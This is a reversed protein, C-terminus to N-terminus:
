SVLFPGITYDGHKTTVKDRHPELLIIIPYFLDLVSTKLPVYCKRDAVDPTKAWRANLIPRVKTYSEIYTDTRGDALYVLVGVSTQGGRLFASVIKQIGM